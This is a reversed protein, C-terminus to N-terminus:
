KRIEDGRAHGHTCAPVKCMRYDWLLQLKEVSVQFHDKKQSFRITYTHYTDKLLYYENMHHRSQFYGNISNMSMVSSFLLVEYTYM